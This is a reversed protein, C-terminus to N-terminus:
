GDGGPGSRTGLGPGILLQAGGIIFDTYHQVVRDRPIHPNAIWWRGLQEGVGSIAHAFAHIREEDVASGASTVADHLHAITHDVTRFRLETLQHGLEGIMPVAAGGFLVIWRDPDRELEAFFVEGSIRVQERPDDVGERAAALRVAFLDRARKVCALYLGEKSGHHQYVIPRSVGAARAVDEISTRDYGKDIFLQEAVDLLQQERAARPLRRRPASGPSTQLANAPM